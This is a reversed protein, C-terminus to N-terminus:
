PRGGPETEVVVVEIEGEDQPGDSTLEAVVWDALVAMLCAAAGLLLGIRVEKPM